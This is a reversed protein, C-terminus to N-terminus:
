TVMLGMYPLYAHKFHGDTGNLAFVSTLIVTPGMHPLFAHFIDTRGMYPLFALKFHRDTGYLAFVCTLIVTQGM